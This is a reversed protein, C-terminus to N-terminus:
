EKFNEVKKKFLQTVKKTVRGVEGSGIKFDDVGVVPLVEKSTSTLFAEDADKIEEPDIRREEFDFRDKVLDIVTARTTGKLIGSKPTIIKKNKILFFNSTVAELVAEESVYLFDFKDEKKLREKKSVPLLYNNHKVEPLSRQYNLTLLEVGSKYYEEPPSKIKQCLAIFTAGEYDRSEITKGGTIILRVACEELGNREKLEYAIDKIKKRSLDINLNLKKASSFLRDIHKDILFFREGYTRIYDFAGYGRLIGIDDARVAKKISQYRGNIFCIDPM